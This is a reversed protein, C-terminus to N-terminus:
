AFVSRTSDIRGPGRPIELFRFIQQRLGLEELLRYVATRTPPALMIRLEDAIREPSIRVLQAAHQRIASATAPEIEFGLRGAFRVARLMRLHDERFRAAPDGIARIRRARLDDRGGVYDIVQEDLSGPHLPDLFLGNMTFDRRKADQDATTFRVSDPHRGDAYEADARFTAVEISSGHHRVLIVGFNAGVAQTNPFMARVRNPQADTAVDWDKPEQGLLLDRVCGGAFYATHGADRLRMLITLADVRRCLSKGGFSTATEPPHAASSMRDPPHFQDTEDEAM